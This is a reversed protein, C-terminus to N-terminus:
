AGFDDIFQQLDLTPDLPELTADFDAWWVAPVGPALERLLTHVVTLPASLPEQDRFILVQLDAQYSLECHHDGARVTINLTDDNDENVSSQPWIRVVSATLQEATFPWAAGTHRDASVFYSSGM